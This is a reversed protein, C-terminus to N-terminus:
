KASLDIVQARRRLGAVWEDVRTRRREAVIGEVIEARVDDLSAMQGQRVFRDAYERYVTLVDDDTPAAVPFRQDFYGAIRLDQRLRERLQRESLGVRALAAEFSGGSPFRARVQDLRRDIAGPDPERPAYREVEVLVLARDILRSLLARGPDSATEVAILGFEQAAALDSALIPQGSVIALVRDIIESSVGEAAALGALCGVLTVAAIRSRVDPTL